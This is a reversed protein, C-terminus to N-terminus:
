GAPAHNMEASASRFRRVMPLSSSMRQAATGSYADALGPPSTFQLIEPGDITTHILYLQSSNFALVEASGDASTTVSRRGWGTTGGLEALSADEITGYEDGTVANLRVM